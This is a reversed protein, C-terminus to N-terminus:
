DGVTEESRTHWLELVRKYLDLIRRGYLPNMAWRNALDHWTSACGRKVLRFRPDVMPEGEPLSATTAYAYLHQLQARVGDDITDFSHGKVGLRTVGLGCYNHQDPTVATGGEFRFWGTELIAQCFAVDGRIGYIEGLHLYAMPIEIPFDPNSALVFAHLTAADVVSPGFILEVTDAELTDAALSDALLPETVEDDWISFDDIDPVAGAQLPLFGLACLIIYKAIRYLM